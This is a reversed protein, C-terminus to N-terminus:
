IYVCVLACNGLDNHVICMCPLICDPSFEAFGDLNTWPTIKAGLFLLVQRSFVDLICNDGYAMKNTFDM